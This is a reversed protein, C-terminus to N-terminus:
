LNGPVRPLGRARARLISRDFGAPTRLEISWRFGRNLGYRRVVETTVFLAQRLSLFVFSSFAGFTVACIIWVARIWPGVDSGPGRPRLIFVLLLAGLGVFVVRIAITMFSRYHRFHEFREADLRELWQQNHAERSRPHRRVGGM